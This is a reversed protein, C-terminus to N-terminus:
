FNLSCFYFFLFIMLFRSDDLHQFTFIFSIKVNDQREVHSSYTKRCQYFDQYRFDTFIVNIEFRLGDFAAHRLLESYIRYLVALHFFNLLNWIWPFPQFNKNFHFDLCDGFFHYLHKNDRGNQQTSFHFNLIQFKEQYSMVPLSSHHHTHWM